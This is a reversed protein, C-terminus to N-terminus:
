PLIANLRQLQHQLEMLKGEMLMAIVELRKKPPGAMDLIRDIENQYSQYKPHQELFRDREAIAEVVAKKRNKDDLSSIKTRNQWIVQRGM